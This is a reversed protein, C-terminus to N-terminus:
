PVAAPPAADSQVSSPASAQPKPDVCGGDVCIRDGKCQTDYRCGDSQAKTPAASVAQQSRKLVTAKIYIGHGNAMAFAADGGAQCVYPRIETKLDSIETHMNDGYAGPSVDITAVEVYGSPPPVTFVEFECNEERPKQEASTPTMSTSGCAVFWGSVAIVGVRKISSSPVRGEV